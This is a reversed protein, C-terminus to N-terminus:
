KSMVARLSEKIERRRREEAAPLSEREELQEEPTKRRGDKNMEGGFSSGSLEFTAVAGGLFACSAFAKTLSRQSLGGLFGAACGAAAGNIGDTSARERVNQMTGDVFTYVFPLAAFLGITGGSRTFVGMFGKNHSQVANQVASFFLGAAAGYAGQTFSASVVPVPHWIPPAPRGPLFFPSTYDVKSPRLLLPNGEDATAM